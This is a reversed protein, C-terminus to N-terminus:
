DFSKLQAKPMYLYLLFLKGLNTWLAKANVYLNHMNTVNLYKRHRLFM